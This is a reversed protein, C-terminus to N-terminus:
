QCALETRIQTAANILQNAQQETLAKGSQASCQNVFARLSDCATATDSANLATLANQLKTVLSNEIGHPLNFNHALATLGNIDDQVSSPVQFTFAYVDFDGFGGPVEWVVRGIGNWVSIDSLAEDLYPTNTVQFLHARSIDYIFVEYGTETLSEFVILNGSIRVGRQVGAMDIQTETGGEVPQYYIDQEGGRNSTYVVIDGNTDPHHDRSTPDTLAHTTFIGPSTQIASYIGCGPGDTLCKEWVIASGTPSVAPNKDFLADNTLRPIVLQTNLDYMGIESRNQNPFGRDEFAVLNGGLAPNSCYACAVLTNIQSTTDFVLVNDGPFLFEVATFAVKTDSVDALRDQANGPIVNDAATLFDFLHITSSGELDDNTYSVRDRHVHPNTQNGRSNNVAQLTGTLMPVTANPTIIGSQATNRAAARSPGHDIGTLALAILLVILVLRRLRRNNTKRNM